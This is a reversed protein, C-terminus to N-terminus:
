PCVRQWHGPMWEGYYTTFGGGQDRPVERWVGEIWVSRCPPAPAYYVPPSYYVPPPYYYVSSLPVAPYFVHPHTIHALFLATAAGAAFGAGFNHGAEAPGALLGLMMVAVLGLAILTRM